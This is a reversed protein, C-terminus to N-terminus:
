RDGGECAESAATVLGALLGCRAPWSELDIYEDPSHDHGGIPGLGDLTPVGAAATWCGDSSGGSHRRGVPTGLQRGLEEAAALLRLASPHPVMAPWRSLGSLEFSVGDIAPASGIRDLAWSVDEDEWGRVDGKARAYDPVSAFHTGANLTGTTVTLGPRGENLEDWRLAERCLALMASRGLEPHTGAHASRGRAVVSFTAQAKRAVVLDGNRRACELVLCADAGRLHELVDPAGTPRTEEDPVSVFDVAAFRRKGSALAEMAALGLLLGGKMDAVGPGLARGDRVAFGLREASGAPFVTDHHGLLVVRAGGSGTLRALVTSGGPGPILETECGLGGAWEALLGAVEERGAPADTGSDIRVLQELRELWRERGKTSAAGAAGAATACEDIPSM